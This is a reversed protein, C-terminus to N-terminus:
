LILIFPFQHIVTAIASAWREVSLIILRFFNSVNKKRTKCMREGFNSHVLPTWKLFPLLILFFFFFFNCQFLRFLCFCVFSLIIISTNFPDLRSRRFRATANLNTVIIIYNEKEKKKQMQQNFSSFDKERKKRYKEM